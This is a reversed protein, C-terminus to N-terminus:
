VLPIAGYNVLGAKAETCTVNFLLSKSFHRSFWPNPEISSKPVPPLTYKLSLALKDIDFNAEM